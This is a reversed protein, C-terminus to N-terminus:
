DQPITLMQLINSMSLGVLALLVGSEDRTAM